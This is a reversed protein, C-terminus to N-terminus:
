CPTATVREGDEFTATIAEPESNSLVALLHSGASAVVVGCDLETGAPRATASELRHLRRKLEGRYQARAVIEQGLYCGKDFDIGDLAHYNFMQPLFSESTADTVWALGADIELAHWGDPGDAADVPTGAPCWYEFRNGLDLTYNSATELATDAVQSGYCALSDTADVLEAKSFVIYKKLFDITTTVLPRQMRLILDNGTKVVFFSSLMRGQLNCIAGLKPVLEELRTLDCTTYGQLFKVADPGTVKLFGQDNLRYTTTMQCIQTVYTM